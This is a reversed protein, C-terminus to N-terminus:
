VGKIDKSLKREALIKLWNKYSIRCSVQTSKGSDNDIFTYSHFKIRYEKEIQKILEYLNREVMQEKQKTNPETSRLISLVRILVDVEEKTLFEHPQETNLYYRVFGFENFSRYVSVNNNIKYKIETGAKKRIDGM